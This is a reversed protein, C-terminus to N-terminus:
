VHDFHLGPGIVTLPELLLVNPYASIFPLGSLVAAIDGYSAPVPWRALLLNVLFGAGSFLGQDVLALASKLGWTRLSEATLQLPTSSETPPSPRDAVTAGYVVQQETSMSKSGTVM